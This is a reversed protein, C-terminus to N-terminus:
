FPPLLDDLDTVICNVESLLLRNWFSNLRLIPLSGTLILHAPSLTTLVSIFADQLKHEDFKTRTTAFILIGGRPTQQIKHEEEQLSIIRVPSPRMPSISLIHNLRDRQASYYSVINISSPDTNCALLRHVLRVIVAAEWPNSYSNSESRIELSRNATSIISFRPLSPLVAHIALMSRITLGSSGRPPMKFERKTSNMQTKKVRNKSRMQPIQLTQCSELQIHIRDDITFVATGNDNARNRAIHYATLDSRSRTSCIKGEQAVLTLCDNEVSIEGDIWRKRKKSAADESYLVTNWQIM